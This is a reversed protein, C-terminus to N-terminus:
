KVKINSPLRKATFERRLTGQREKRHLKEAMKTRIDKTVVMKVPPDDAEDDDNNTGAASFPNEKRNFKQTKKKIRTEKRVVTKIPPKDLKEDNSANVSIFPNHLKPPQINQKKNTSQSVEKKMARLQNELKKGNSENLHYQKQLNEIEEQLRQIDTKEESPSPIYIYPHESSFDDELQPHPTWREEDFNLVSSSGDFSSSMGTGELEGSSKSRTLTGNADDNALADKNRKSKDFAPWKDNFELTLSNSEDSSNVTYSRISATGDVPSEPKTPSEPKVPSESTQQSKTTELIVRTEELCASRVALEVRTENLERERFLLLNKLVNMDEKMKKLEKSHDKKDHQAEEVIKTAISREKALKENTKAVAKDLNMSSQSSDVSDATPSKVESLSELKDDYEKRMKKQEKELKKRLTVEQELRRNKDELEKELRSVKESADTLQKDLVEEKLHCEKPAYLSSEESCTSNVSSAEEAKMRLEIEHKIQQNKEDLEKELSTLKLHISNM